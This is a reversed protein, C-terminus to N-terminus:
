EGSKDSRRDSTQFGRSAEVSGGSDDVANPSRASLAPPLLAAALLAEATTGVLVVEGREAASAAALLWM